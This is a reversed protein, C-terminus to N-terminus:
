LDRPYHLRWGRDHKTKRLGHALYFDFDLGLDRFIRCATHGYGAREMYFGIAQHYPYTHDLSKLTTILTQVRVNSKALKFAELVRRVGGAYGPRVTIDILTRELKTVDLPEGSPGLLRDVELRGTNKGSIMVVRWKGYELFYNSRRQPRSFALDIAEQTLAAEFRSKPTQEKNVYVITPVQDTLRHLFVASGHSLYANSRLSLAVQYPSVRGWTYRVIPAYAQNKLKVIRLRTKGLLFHIFNGTTVRGSVQWARRKEELISRIQRHSFTSAPSKQFYSLIEPKARELDPPFPM